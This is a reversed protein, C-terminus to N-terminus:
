VGIPKCGPMYRTHAKADATIPGPVLIQRYPNRTGLTKQIGHNLSGQTQPKLIRPQTEVTLLDCPPTMFAHCDWAALVHRYLIRTFKILFHTKRRAKQGQEDPRLAEGGGEDVLGTATKIQILIHAAYSYVPWLFLPTCWNGDEGKYITMCCDCLHSWMLQGTGVMRYNQEQLAQDLCNKHNGSHPVSLVEGHRFKDRLIAHYFFSSLVLEQSIAMQSEFYICLKDEVFSSTTVYIFQPICSKPM